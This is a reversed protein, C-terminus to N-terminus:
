ESPRPTGKRATPRSNPWSVPASPHIRRWALALGPCPLRADAQGGIVGVGGVSAGHGGSRAARNRLWRCFGVNMSRYGYAHPVWQVLIRRPAPFRDLQEGVRRLDASSLSGLARHVVVGPAEPGSDPNRCPACWVHVEDGQDALGAAVLSTYDSM